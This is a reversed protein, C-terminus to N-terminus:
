LFAGLFAVVAAGAPVGFSSAAGTQFANASPSAASGTPDSTTGTAAPSSRATTQTAAVSAVSAMSASAAARLPEAAQCFQTVQNQVPPKENSDPCNNYCVLVDTYVDCMCIFDNPKENCADIRAQYGAVCADVINQAACKNQAAVLSATASFFLAVATSFRM